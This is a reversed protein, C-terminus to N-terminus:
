GGGTSTLGCLILGPAVTPGRAVGRSLLLQQQGYMQSPKHASKWVVPLGDSLPSFSLDCISLHQLGDLLLIDYYKRDFHRRDRLDWEEQESNTINAIIM